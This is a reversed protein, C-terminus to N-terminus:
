STLLTDPGPPRVGTRASLVSLTERPVVTPGRTVMSDTKRRQHGLHGGWSVQTEVSGVGLRETKEKFLPLYLPPVPPVQVTVGTTEM